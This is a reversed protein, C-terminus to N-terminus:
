VLQIAGAPRVEIPTVCGSGFVGEMLLIYDDLEKAPIYAQISGAFGGGQVRYAGKGNLFYETLSLGIAISQDEPNKISYVNQLYEFSSHGSKTVLSLYLDINEDILAKEMDIVRQNEHVYHIARLLARDGATDRLKKISWLMDAYSIGRLNEQLFFSAVRKMESPIRSYEDTLDAHSEGTDVVVLKYGFHEFNINLREIDPKDSNKFDIRACHGISCLLQDMLGCPKGFYQNEAFQGAKAIELSDIKGSNFMHSIITGILVEFSASSSLGSGQNITSTVVAKFGGIAFGKSKLYSVVGRVLAKPTGTDNENIATDSIDLKIKKKHGDSVIEIKSSDSKEAACITDLNIGAALVTGNNHDTHNGALEVRGPSSFIEIDSNTFNQKFVTVLNKYREIQVPLQTLGYLSQVKSSFSDSELYEQLMEYTM